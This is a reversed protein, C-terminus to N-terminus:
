DSYTIQVGRSFVDEGITTKKSVTVTKLNDCGLFAYNGISTVSPPITISTLSDREFFAGVAIAITDAQINNIVANATMTGKYTYLVKGAYVLGAPQMNLWATNDFANYGIYAVGSSITINILSSCSFFASDRILFVSSPITVSTLSNCYAFANHGINIVGEQITVSTLSYCYAFANHGVSIVSEPITVSTLSSCGAFAFDGIIIVSKPITVSTLGSYMSFAHVGIVTVGEPIVVNAEIGRYRVLVTGDMEFNQSQGFLALPAYLTVCLLLATFISQRNMNKERKNKLKIM